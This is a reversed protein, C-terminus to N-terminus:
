FRTSRTALRRRSKPQTATAGQRSQLFADLDEPAIVHRPRPGNTLNAARLQGSHIWQRVKAPSVQLQAAVDAVSLPKPTADKGGALREMTAAHALVAAATSNGNTIELFRQFDHELTM